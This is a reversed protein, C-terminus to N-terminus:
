GNVLSMEFKRKLFVNNLSTYLEPYRARPNVAFKMAKLWSAVNVNLLINMWILREM